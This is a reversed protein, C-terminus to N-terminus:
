HQPFWVGRDVPIGMNPIIHGEDLTSIDINPVVERVPPLEGGDFLEKRIVFLADDLDYATVGCGRSLFNHITRPNSNDFYIWYRTLRGKLAEM